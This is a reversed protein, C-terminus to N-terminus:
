ADFMQAHLRLARQRLSPKHAMYTTSYADRARADYIGTYYVADGLAYNAFDSHFMGLRIFTM